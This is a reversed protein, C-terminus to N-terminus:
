INLWYTLKAVIARSKVSFDSPLYNDTYVLFFDSVPAFRWQLRANININEAQTNYQFFTTLFIKKTFTLDIRPGVLYINTPEFPPDLKIRNYNANIAFNGFRHLRYNVSGSLGTRVGNFFQGIIPEIRFSWVKSRDSNYEVSVSTFNYDSDAPLYNEGKRTPDFEELLYVYENRIGFQLRSQNLFDVDWMLAFEKDSIGLGPTHFLDASVSPGHQIIKSDAPYFFFRVSPIMRLYDKRPVFGVQADYGEGVLEHRWSIEHTRVRYSLETGHAFKDSIDEETIAKHYFIKGTWKNDPTALNYDIGIIRNYQNLEPNESDGMAQKNVLIFGINSRNFVKRQVAAVTYNYSPLDFGKEEATQMSLLGLRWDNNLKGSLRAGFLIPNQVNEEAYNDYAVGIRRSFFPNIRDFGFRGFLDSNELFFQRREPFFVEFRTLNTVQRDVEVQSFDPNITLDLSMGSSVAIKADAGAGWNGSFKSNEEEYDRNLNGSLYPIVAFSKGSKKLPEDWVLEGTYALNMVMQNRPIQVWTTRENSQYDFRYCNFGWRTSGDQFRLTKFPIAIETTWYGDFIKAEGDWKNDWSEQFDERNVGGNSILAERLVGMPTAGFVFANTNDSYTDLVFTINDNGNARFDRKLSEVVYNNGPAYCKAAFYLFDDDYTMYVKTQYNAQVTDGPFWQWFNSVYDGQFWAPEDINGDLIITSNAKHIQISPTSIELEGKRSPAPTQSFEVNPCLLLFSWLAFISKITM